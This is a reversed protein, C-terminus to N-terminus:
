CIALIPLLLLFLFTFSVCEKAKVNKRLAEKATKDKFNEDATM